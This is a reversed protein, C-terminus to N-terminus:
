TDAHASLVVPGPVDRRPEGELVGADRMIRAVEALDVTMSRSEVQLPAGDPGSLEVQTKERYGPHWRKAWLAVTSPAPEEAMVLSEVRDDVKREIADRRTDWAEAFRQRLEGTDDIEIRRKITPWKWGVVLSAQYPTDGKELREFFTALCQDTVTAPHVSRAQSRAM